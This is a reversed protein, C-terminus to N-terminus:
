HQPPRRRMVQKLSPGVTRAALALRLQGEELKASAMMWASVPLVVLLVLTCALALVALTMARLRAPLTPTLPTNM